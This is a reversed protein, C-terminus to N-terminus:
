AYLATNGIDKETMQSLRHRGRDHQLQAWRERIHLKICYGLIHDIGFYNFRNLEDIKEFRLRDEYRELEYYAEADIMEMVRTTYALEAGLGFDAMNSYRMMDTTYEDHGVIFEIFNKKLKRELVATTFNKLTRDFMFFQRLFDNQDSCFDIYSLALRDEDRRSLPRSLSEVFSQMYEPMTDPHALKEELEDDSFIGGPTFGDEKKLRRIINKNDVDLQILSIVRFDDAACNERCLDIFEEVSIAHQESDFDIDPLSTVFYYYKM